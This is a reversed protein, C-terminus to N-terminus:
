GRKKLNYRQIVAQRTTFMDFFNWIIFKGERLVFYGIILMNIYVYMMSVFCDTMVYSNEIKFYGMIYTFYVWYGIKYLEQSVIETEEELSHVQYVRENIVIM